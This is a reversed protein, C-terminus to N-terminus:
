FSEQSWGPTQKEVTSCYRVSQPEVLSPVLYLRRQRGPEIGAGPAAAVVSVHTIEGALTRCELAPSPFTM